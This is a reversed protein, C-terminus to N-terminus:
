KDEEDRTSSSPQNRGQTSAVRPDGSPRVRVTHHSCATGQSSHEVHANLGSGEPHWGSQVRVGRFSRFVHKGRDQNRFRNSYGIMESAANIQVHHVDHQHDSGESSESQWEHTGSATQLKKNKHEQNSDHASPKKLERRTMIGSEQIM